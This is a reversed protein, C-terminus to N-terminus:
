NFLFVLLRDEIYVSFDAGVGIPQLDCLAIQFQICVLYGICDLLLLIFILLGCWIYVVDYM